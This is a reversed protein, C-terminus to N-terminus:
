YLAPNLMTKDSGYLDEAQVVVASINDRGGSALALDVLAKATLECNGRVIASAIEQEGVQNTLGDSCLLFIDGDNVNASEEDLELQDVAGVARTIVNHPVPMLADEPSTRRQSKHAEAQSHDRTLQKLQGDRYLYLRSDGAWLYTCSHDCALMVVVTSGIIQVGRRAAEARLKLNAAELQHRAEAVSTSLSHLQRIKGLSKVVTRSAVDGVSHGGMGDAVAWLRQGPLDLCADENVERVLGVHTCSASTWRFQTVDTM